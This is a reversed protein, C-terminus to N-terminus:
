PVKTCHKFGVMIELLYITITLLIKFSNSHLQTPVHIGLWPIKLTHDRSGARITDSYESDRPAHKLSTHGRGRRLQRPAPTQTIHKTILMRLSVTIIDWLLSGWDVSIFPWTLNGLYIDCYKPQLLYIYYSQNFHMTPTLTNSRAHTGTRPLPAARRGRRPQRVISSM